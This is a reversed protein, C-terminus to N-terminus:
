QRTVRPLHLLPDVRNGDVHVEFHLHNASARGTMGMLMITQGQVVRDGVNVLIESAHAYLTHIGNDHRVKVMKGFAGSWGAFVVEGSDAAVIPTGASAVIDIGQHNSSGISVNRPGFMSSLIGETPWIFAGTSASSELVQVSHDSIAISTNKSAVKATRVQMPEQATVSAASLEFDRASVIAPAEQKFSVDDPVEIAALGITFVDSKAVEVLELVDIGAPEAAEITEAEEADHTQPIEVEVPENAALNDSSVTDADPESHSDAVLEEAGDFPIYEAASINADAVEIYEVTAVSDVSITEGSTGLQMDALSLQADHGHASIPIDYQYVYSGYYEEATQENAYIGSFASAPIATIIIVAMVGAAYPAARRITIHNEGLYKTIAHFRDTLGQRLVLASQRVNKM